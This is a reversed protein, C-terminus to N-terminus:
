PTPMRRLRGSATVGVPTVTEGTAAAPVAAPSVRVGDADIQLVDGGYQLRAYSDSVQVVSNGMVLQVTTGDTFVQAGNPFTIAGGHDTPDLVMGGVHVRNGEIRVDDATFTGSLAFDGSLKVDGAIEGDGSDFRWPGSWKFSGEGDLRSEEQLLLQASILRLRGKSISSNGLPTATELARLRDRLDRLEASLSPDYAM